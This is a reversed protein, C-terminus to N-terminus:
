KVGYIRISGADFSSASLTFTISTSSTTLGSPGAYANTIVISTGTYGSGACWFVGNNLDVIGGGFTVDGATAASLNAITYGNLRLFINTNVASIGDLTYQVQKYPTLTLGSLTVSSGSTTALTGLHVISSAADVNATTALTGTADPLTLTQDSNSNPSAITFTGTGSNNPTFALKSM